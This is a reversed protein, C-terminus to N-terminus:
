SKVVRTKSIRDHWGGGDYFLFSISDFPIFRCLTRVFAISFTPKENTDSDITKTKTVVKGLTKGTLSEFIAYYLIMLVYFSVYTYISNSFSEEDISDVLDPSTVGIFIGVFISLVVFLVYIAFMDIFYNLFRSTKSAEVFSTEKEFEEFGYKGTEPQFNPEM